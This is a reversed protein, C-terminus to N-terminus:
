WADTSQQQQQPQGKGGRGGKGRRGGRRSGGRGRGGGGRGGGGGGHKYNSHDGHDRRFDTGGFSRGKGKGSGKGVQVGALGTIWSPIEQQTEELVRVLDKAIPANRENIFSTALGKNGARGTRGIRHVYSDIDSPMDYNIVHMVDPIDLGRAAVETAVLVRVRGTTFEWLAQERERQSRDGHISTCLIQEKRYLDHHLADATRKTEVFILTLGDVKSLQEILKFNKNQDDVWLLQQTISMNTSGVRGVTVFIYDAMFDGALQQIDPPFTASFMATQRGGHKYETNPMDYGQVIKRIQPEFGMDLMRDAEDLVLHRVKSLSVRRREILDELRGPTAVIISCGRSLEDMQLRIDSGGYLVICRLSSEYTFRMAEDHIQSALERTPALVLAQPMCQRRRGYRDGGGYGGRGGRHGGSRGNRGEGKEQVLITNIIPFLFAATKGSGTQACAMVDRGLLAMPIAHKQIPTPRTYNARNINDMLEKSLGADAFKTIPEPIGHGSAEVPIDDYKDFDLGAGMHKESGFLEKELAERGKKSHVDRYMSGQKDSKTVFDAATSDPDGAELADESGKGNDRQTPAWVKPKAWVTPSNSQQPKQRQQERQDSEGHQQHRQYQTTSSQREQSAPADVNGQSQQGAQATPQIQDPTVLGAPTQQQQQQQQQQLRLLELQQQLMQIQQQQQHHIQLMDPHMLHQQMMMTQQMQLMQAQQQQLMQEYPNLVPNAPALTPSMHVHASKPVFEKSNSRLKNTATAVNDPPGEHTSQDITTPQTPQQLRDQGPTAGERRQYQQGLLSVRGAAQAQSEPARPPTPARKQQDSQALASSGSLGPSGTARPPAGAGLMQNYNKGKTKRTKFKLQVPKRSDDVTGAAGAAGDEPTSAM